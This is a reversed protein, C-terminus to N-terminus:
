IRSDEILVQTHTKDCHLLTGVLIVKEIDKSPCWHFMGTSDYRKVNVDMNEIQENGPILLPDHRCLLFFYFIYNSWQYQIVISYFLTMLINLFIFNSNRIGQMRATNSGKSKSELSNQYGFITIKAKMSNMM